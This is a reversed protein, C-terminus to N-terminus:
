QSVMQMITQDISFKGQEPAKSDSAQIHMLIRGKWLSAIEPNENMLQKNASPALGIPGGYVNKWMLAGGRNSYSNVIDKLSMYISGISESSLNDKDMIKLILRDNSLPWQVAMKFSCEFVCKENVAKVVQTEYSKKQFKTQIFADISGFTDMKPLKQAEIFSIVVQKYEKKISSPMM